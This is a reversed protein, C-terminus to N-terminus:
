GQAANLETLREVNEQAMKQFARRPETVNLKLEAEDYFRKARSELNLAQALAQQRDVPPTITVQYDAADLGSIPELIIETINDQRIAVLRQQRKTSRQAYNAFMEALDGAVNAAAGYYTASEREIEVAFSLVASFTSLGSNLSL